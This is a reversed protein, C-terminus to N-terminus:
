KSNYSLCLTVWLSILPLFYLSLYSIIAPLLKAIVEGQGSGRGGQDSFVQLSSLLGACAILPVERCVGIQKGKCVAPLLLLSKVVMYNLIRKSIWTSRVKLPELSSWFSEERFTLTRKYPRATWLRRLVMFHQLCKDPVSALSDKQRNKHEKTILM